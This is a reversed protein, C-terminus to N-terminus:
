ANEGLLKVVGEEDFGQMDVKLYAVRENALVLAENVGSLAALEQSLDNATVIDMEQVQYMKSRVAAPAEMTIALVLWIMVLLGCFIYLAYVGYHEFLYGGATAGLFAGLFQM